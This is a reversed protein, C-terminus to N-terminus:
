LQVRRAADFHRLGLLALLAPLLLVVSNPEPVAVDPQSLLVGSESEWTYGAPAIVYVKATNLANVTAGGDNPVGGGGIQFVASFSVWPSVGSSLIPLDVTQWIDFDFANAAVTNTKWNGATGTQVVSEEIGAPVGLLSKTSQRWQYVYKSTVTSNGTYFGAFAAITGVAYVLSDGGILTPTDLDSFGDALMGITVPLFAASPAGKLQVRDTLTLVLDAGARSGTVIGKLQGTLLSGEGFGSVSFGPGSEAGTVTTTQGTPGVKVQTPLTLISTVDSTASAAPAALLLIATAILFLEKKM